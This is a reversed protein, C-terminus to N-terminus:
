AFVGALADASAGEKITRLEIYLSAVLAAAVLSVITALVASVAWAAWSMNGISEPTTAVGVVAGVLGSAVMYAIVFILLLLFVRWRSGKTLARSRKMSEIVGANEELMAPVSVVLMIYLIIGPVILLVMGLGIAIASLLALGILPGIRRMALAVSGGVDGGVIASRVLVAQVLVGIVTGVLITLWYYPSFFTALIQDPTAASNFQQLLAAMAVATGGSVLAAIALGGLGMAGVMSGMRSLVRGLDIKATEDM